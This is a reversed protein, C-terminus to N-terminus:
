SCDRHISNLNKLEPMRGLSFHMCAATSSKLEMSCAHEDNFSFPTVVISVQCFSKPSLSGFESWIRM